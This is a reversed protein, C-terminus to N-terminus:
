DARDRSRTLALTPPPPPDNLLGFSLVNIWSRQRNQIEPASTFNGEADLTEHDPYNAALVRLSEHAPDDLGLMLYSQVMLALADPVMPTSPLNETVYRARNAAAVYAGRRFYYRAIHLETRALLNRIYVMRARADAAYESNPFRSILQQFDVFAERAGGIDRKSQDTPIVGDLLGRDQEFSAVGKLYMAYDAHEHQPHLRLFRDAANRAAEVDYSRYYAYILELQAQEAYQGFPFRSELTQLQEIASSWASTRLSARAMRYLVQESTEPVEQDDNGFFPINSCGQFLAGVLLALAVLLARPVPTPRSTIQSPM